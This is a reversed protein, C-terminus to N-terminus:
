RPDAARSPAISPGGTVTAADSRNLHEAISFKPQIAPHRVLEIQHEDFTVSDPHTGKETLQCPQITIRVCGNLWFTIAVVVGEFGTVRDRVLDGLDIKM